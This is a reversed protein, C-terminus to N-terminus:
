MSRSMPSPACIRRVMGTKRVKRSCSPVGIAVAMVTALCAVLATNSIVKWDDILNLYNDLGIEEPPFVQADGINFSEAILYAIPYAVLGGCFVIVLATAIGQANPRWGLLRGRRAVPLSLATM